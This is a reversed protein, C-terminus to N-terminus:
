GASGTSLRPDRTLVTSAHDVGGEVSGREITLRAAVPLLFESSPVHQVAGRTTVTGPTAEPSHAFLGTFTTGRRKNARITSAVAIVV